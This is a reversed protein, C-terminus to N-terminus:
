CRILKVWLTLNVGALKQDNVSNEKGSHTAVGCFVILNELVLIVFVGNVRAQNFKNVKVNM